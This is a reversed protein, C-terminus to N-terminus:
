ALQEATQTLVAAWRHIAPELDYELIDAVTVWDESAQASLLADLVGVLEHVVQYVSKGTNQWPSDLWYPQAM